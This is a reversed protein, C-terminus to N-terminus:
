EFPIMQNLRDRRKQCSSCGKLNTKFVADSVKAVPEAIRAVLDGAGRYKKSSVKKLPKPTIKQLELSM